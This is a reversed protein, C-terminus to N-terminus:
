ALQWPLGKKVRRHPQFTTGKPRWVEALSDLHKKQDEVVLVRAM